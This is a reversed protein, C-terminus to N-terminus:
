CSCGRRLVKWLLWQAMGKRFGKFDAQRRYNNLKKKLAEAYDEKVLEITLSLNLDDIRNESINM